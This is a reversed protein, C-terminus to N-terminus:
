RAAETFEEMPERAHELLLKDLERNQEADILEFVDCDERWCPQLAKPSYCIETTHVVIHVDSVRYRIRVKASPEERTKIGGIRLGITTVFTHVTEPNSM